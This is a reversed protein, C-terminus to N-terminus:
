KLIKLSDRRQKFQKKISDRWNEGWLKNFIAEYKSNDSNNIKLMEDAYYIYQQNKLINEEGTSEILEWGKVFYDWANEDGRKRKCMGIMQYLNIQINLDHGANIELAESYYIIALRHKNQFFYGNAKVVLFQVCAMRGGDINESTAQKAYIIANDIAEEAKSNKNKATYFSYFFYHVLGELHLLRNKQALEIAQMGYKLVDSENRYGIAENMRVILQQFNISDKSIDDKAEQKANELVQDIAGNLDINPQIYKFLTTHKKSLPNLLRADYSDYLMFRVREDIKCGLLEDIWVRFDPINETSKPLLALILKMKDDCSLSDALSNINQAFNQADSKQADFKVNWEIRGTTESLEKKENWADIYSTIVGLVTKGYSDLKEFSQQSLLFIDDLNNQDSMQVMVFATVMKQEQSSAGLWCLLRSSPNNKVESDWQESLRIVQELIPNSEM